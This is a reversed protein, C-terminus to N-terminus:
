HYIVFSLSQTLLHYYFLFYASNVNSLDIEKSLLIDAEGQPNSLDISYALGEANLGDFTAVGITPPNVPYSRNIFISSSDWLNNDPQNFPYSFDDIFPLTIGLKQKTNSEKQSLYSISYLDSLIEQSFVSNFAFFLIFLLQYKMM